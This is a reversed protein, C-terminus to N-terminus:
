KNILHQDLLVQTMKLIRRCLEKIEAAEPMNDIDKKFKLAEKRWQKLTRENIM